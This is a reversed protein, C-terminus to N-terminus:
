ADNDGALIRARHRRLVFISTITLVCLSAAAVIVPLLLEHSGADVALTIGEILVNQAVATGDSLMLVDSGRNYTLTVDAAGIAGSKPSFYLTLVRGNSTDNFMGNSLFNFCIKDSAVESGTAVLEMDALASGREYGDFTLLQEDYSLTFNAAYLGVNNSINVEVVFDGSQALTIIPNSDAFATDDIALMFVCNFLVIVIILYRLTCLIRDNNM